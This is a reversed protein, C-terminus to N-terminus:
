APGFGISNGVIPSFSPDAITSWWGKGAQIPRAGSGWEFLWATNLSERHILKREVSWLSRRSWPRTESMTWVRAPILSSDDRRVELGAESRDNLRCSASDAFWHAEWFNPGEAGLISSPDVERKNVM